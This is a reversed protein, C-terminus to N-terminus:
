PATALVKEMIDDESKAILFSLRNGAKMIVDMARSFMISTLLVFNLMKIKIFFSAYISM